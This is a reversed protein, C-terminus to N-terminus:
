MVILFLFQKLNQCNMFAKEPIVTLGHGGLILNTTKTLYKQIESVNEDTAGDIRVFVEDQYFKENSLQEVTLLQYEQYNGDSLKVEEFLKMSITIDQSVTIEQGSVDEGNVFYRGVPGDGLSEADAVKYKSDKDVQITSGDALTITVKEVVPPQDDPTKDEGSPTKDETSPTKDGNTTNETTNGQPTNDDDKKCSSITLSLSMLLMAVTLLHKKM